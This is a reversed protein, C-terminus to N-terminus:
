AFITIIMEMETLPTFDGYGVTSLTTLAFYSITILNYGDYTPDNLQNATIFTQQSVVDIKNSFYRSCMYFLCGFFYTMMLLMFILRSVSFTFMNNYREVLEGVGPKASGIDILM